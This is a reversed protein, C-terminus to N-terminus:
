ILSLYVNSIRLKYCILINTTNEWHDIQIALWKDYNNTSIVVSHKTSNAGPILGVLSNKKSTPLFGYTQPYVELVYALLKTVYCQIKKYIM